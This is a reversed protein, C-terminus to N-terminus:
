GPDETESVVNLGYYKSELAVARTFETALTDLEEVEAVIRRPDRVAFSRANDADSFHRVHHCFAECVDSAIEEDSATAVTAMVTDGRRAQVGSPSVGIEVVTGDIPDVSRVEVNTGLFRPIAHAWLACCAYFQGRDSALRHPTPSLSMGFLDVIHGQMDRQSRVARLKEILQEESLGVVEALRQTKVPRGAALMSFGPLLVGADRWREALARITSSLRENM